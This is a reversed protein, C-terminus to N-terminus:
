RCSFWMKNGVQVNTTAFAVAVPVVLVMLPFVLRDVLWPFSADVHHVLMFLTKLNNRLTIGIIPFSSSLTFVPFLALFYQVVVCSTIPNKAGAAAEPGFNLTYLDEIDAFTFVATFCITVYFLLVFLYDLAFFRYIISKNRIPTALQPLSHHCMFAYVCVGFLNTVGDLEVVPPHGESGGESLHIVTLIIMLLFAAFLCLEHLYLTFVSSFYCHDLSQVPHPLFFHVGLNKRQKRLM